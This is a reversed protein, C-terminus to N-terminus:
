NEQFPREVNENEKNLSSKIQSIRGQSVGFEAALQKIVGRTAPTSLRTKIEVLQENTLKSM